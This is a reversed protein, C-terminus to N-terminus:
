FQLSSAPPSFQLISLANESTTPSIRSAVLAGGDVAIGVLFRRPTYLALESDTAQQIPTESIADAQELAAFSRRSEGTLSWVEVSNELGVALVDKM